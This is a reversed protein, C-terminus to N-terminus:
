RDVEDDDDDVIVVSGEDVNVGECTDIVQVAGGGVDELTEEEEGGLCSINASSGSGSGSGSDSDSDMPSSQQRRHLGLRTAGGGGANLLRETAAMFALKVRGLVSNPSPRTRSWIQSEGVPRHWRLCDSAGNVSMSDKMALSAM